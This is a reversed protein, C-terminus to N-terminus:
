PEGWQEGEVSYTNGNGIISVIVGLPGATVTKFGGGPVWYTGDGGATAATPATGNTSFTFYIDAAGVVKNNITVRKMWSSLTVTDVTTGSLTAHECLVGSIAAM